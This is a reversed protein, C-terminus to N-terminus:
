INQNYNHSAKRGTHLEKLSLAVKTQENIIKQKTLELWDNLKLLTEIAQPESKAAIALDSIFSDLSSLLDIAKIPDSEADLLIHDVKECLVDLNLTPYHQSM